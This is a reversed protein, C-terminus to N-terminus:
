CVVTARNVGNFNFTIQAQQKVQIAFGDDRQNDTRMVKVFPSAVCSGARVPFARLVPMKTAVCRPIEFAGNLLPMKQIHRGLPAPIKNTWIVVITGRRHHRAPSHFHNKPQLSDGNECNRPGATFRIKADTPLALSSITISM